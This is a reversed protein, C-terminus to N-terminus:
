RRGLQKVTEKIVDVGEAIMIIVILVRTGQQAFLSLVGATGSDFLGTAQLADPSLSVIPPGVLLFYGIVIGAADLAISFWKTSAQWRGRRLLVVNLAIQLAWLVNIYPLWRFFAETLAPISTWQGDRMFGIGILNPYANFIILAAASFVIGAM